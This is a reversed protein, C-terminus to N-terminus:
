FRVHPDARSHPYSKRLAEITMRLNAAHPPLQYLSVVPSQQLINGGIRREAAM